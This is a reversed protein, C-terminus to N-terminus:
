DESGDDEDRGIYPLDIGTFPLINSTEERELIWALTFMGAGILGISIAFTLPAVISNAIASGPAISQVTSRVGAEVIRAGGGVIAAFVDSVGGILTGLPDTILRRVTNTVIAIGALLTVFIGGIGWAIANFISGDFTDGFNKVLKVPNLRSGGPGSSM